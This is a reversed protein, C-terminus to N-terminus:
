IMWYQKKYVKDGCRIVEIERPEFIEYGDRAYPGSSICVVYYTKDPSEYIYEESNNGCIDHYPNWRSVCKKNEIFKEFEDKNM